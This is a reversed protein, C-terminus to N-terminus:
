KLVEPSGARSTIFMGSATFFLLIIWTAAPESWQTAMESSPWTYQQPSISLPWYPWSPEMIIDARLCGSSSIPSLVM